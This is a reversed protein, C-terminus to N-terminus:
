EPSTHFTTHLMSVVESKPASNYQQKVNSVFSPKTMRFVLGQKFKHSMDKLVQANMGKGRSEGLVYQTPEKTPVLLCRFNYSTRKKGQYIYEREASEPAFILVEWLGFAASQSTLHALPSITTEAAADQAAM